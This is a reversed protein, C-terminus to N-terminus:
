EQLYGLTGTTDATRLGNRILSSTQRRRVANLCFVEYFTSRRVHNKKFVDATVSIVKKKFLLPDVLQGRHTIEM